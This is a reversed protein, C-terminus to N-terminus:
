DGSADWPSFFVGLLTNPFAVSNNQEKGRYLHSNGLQVFRRLPPGDLAPCRLTELLPQSQAFRFALKDPLNSIIQWTSFNRLLVKWARPNGNRSKRGLFTMHDIKM